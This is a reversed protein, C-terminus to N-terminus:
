SDRLAACGRLIKDKEPVNERWTSCRLKVADTHAAHPFQELLTSHCAYSGWFAIIRKKLTRQTNGQCHPKEFGQNRMCLSALVRKSSPSFMSELNNTNLHGTYLPKLEYNMSNWQHFGGGLM